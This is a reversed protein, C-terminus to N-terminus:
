PPETFNVAVTVPVEVFGLPTPVTSKLSAPFVIEPHEATGSVPLLASQVVDASLAPLWLMVATYLPPVPYLPLVLEASVCVTLLAVRVTVALSALRSYPSALGFKM